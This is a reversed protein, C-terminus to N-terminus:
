PKISGPVALSTVSLGPVELSVLGKQGIDVPPLPKWFTPATSQEGTIRGAPSFGNANLRLQQPGHGNNIVVLVLRKDADDRFATVQVL